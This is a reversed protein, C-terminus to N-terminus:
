IINVLKFEGEYEFVTTFADGNRCEEAVMKEFNSKIQKLDAEEGRDGFNVSLKYINNDVNPDALYIINIVNDFDAYIQNGAINLFDIVKSKLQQETLEKVIFMYNTKLEM